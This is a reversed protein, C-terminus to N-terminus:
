IFHGAIFRLGHRVVLIGDLLAASVSSAPASPSRSAGLLGDDAIEKLKDFGVDESLTTQLSL